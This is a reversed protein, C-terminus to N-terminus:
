NSIGNFYEYQKPCDIFNPKDSLIKRVNERPIKLFIKRWVVTVLIELSCLCIKENFFNLIIMKQEKIGYNRLRHCILCLCIVNAYVDLSCSFKNQFHMSIIHHVEM